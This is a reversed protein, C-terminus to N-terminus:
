ENGCGSYTCGTLCKVLCATSLIMLFFFLILLGTFIAGIVSTAAFSIALLIVSLLITGLIGTLLVPLISCLCSKTAYNSSAAATILIVALYVVAIGFTVWLFASTVTIVASFRLFAAIIGLIISAVVSLSTCGNRCNCGFNTMKDGGMTLIHM